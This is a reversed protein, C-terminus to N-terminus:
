GETGAAVPDFARLSRSFFRKLDGLIGPAGDDGARFWEIRPDRRLWAMQRRALARTRRATRSAAESQSLSGELCRVAEAYGIAQSSTLFGKFGRDSLFAAEALLGPMMDQVRQEIRRRLVSPPM